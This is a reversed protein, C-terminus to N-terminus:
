SKPISWLEHIENGKERLVLRVKPELIVYDKIEPNCPLGLSLITIGSM